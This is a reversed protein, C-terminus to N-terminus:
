KKQKYVTHKKAIPNFKKTEYKKSPDKKVKNNYRTYYVHGKGIGEKDGASVLKILLDQSMTPCDYCFYSKADIANKSNQYRKTWIGFRGIIPWYHGIHTRHIHYALSPTNSLKKGIEEALSRMYTGSSCICVIQAIAFQDHVDGANLFKEWDARVDVRRFDNGLKKRKETVPPILNIKKIVEKYIKQRTKTEVKTCDLKYVTSNQTPITIESLRGELTWTHLPKGAVTKASFWPYPFSIGGVLEPLILDTDNQTVQPVITNFDRLRGLCDGTDSSVGFLVSFEYRKDLAHYKEQKKCEEGILVLLKGSAMPDLRGAYSFPLTQFAPPAAM